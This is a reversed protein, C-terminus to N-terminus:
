YFIHCEAMHALNYIFRIYSVANICCFAAYLHQTDNQYVSFVQNSYVSFDQRENKLNLCMFRKNANAMDFAPNEEDSHPMNFVSAQTRGPDGAPPEIKIVDAGWDGLIRPVTPAALFSTLDIIKVGELPRM